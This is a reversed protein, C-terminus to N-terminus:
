GGREFRRDYRAGRVSAVSRSTGFLVLAIVATVLFGRAYPIPDALTFDYLSTISWAACGAALIVALLQGARALGSAGGVGRLMGAAAFSSLYVLAWYGLPANTLIDVTLGAAFAHWERCRDAEALSLGAIAAVPLLPLVFRYDAALGWPLASLFALALLIMLPKLTEFMDGM